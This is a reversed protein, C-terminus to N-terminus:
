DVPRIHDSLDDNIWDKAGGRVWGESDEELYYNRNVNPNYVETGKAVRVYWWSSGDRCEPGSVVTIVTGTYIRFLQIYDTGASSRVILRDQETTVIAQGNERFQQPYAGKCSYLINDTDIVNTSLNTAGSESPRDNTTPNNNESINLNNNIPSDPLIGKFLGFTRSLATLAVGIGIVVGLIFISTIIKRALHKEPIIPTSPEIITTPIQIQHTCISCVWNGGQVTFSDPTRCVPCITPKSQSNIVNITGFTM